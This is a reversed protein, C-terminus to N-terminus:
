AVLTENNLLADCIRVPIGGFDGKRKGDVTEWTLGSTTLMDRRQISLMMAVTRNMYFVPNCLSLNPIHYTAKEMLDTLDAASSKTVLSSLDINPIRVAYQWDKVVMGSQWQWRERYARDRTGAMAASTEVTEVGYDDHRLGAPAGRPFLGFITSPGWGILWVSTNDSGVGGGLIINEGNTASTAAFRVGLGNFEEPATSSNGYFITQAMENNMAQIFPMAETARFEATNGNKECVLEPIESWAELIGCTETVQATTSKSPQVGSGVIKWYVDPLGTRVGVMHSNGDNAEVYPMDLLIDNTAELLEAIALIEGAPGTRKAHDVLTLYHAGVTAM